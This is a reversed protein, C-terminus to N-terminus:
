GDTHEELLYPVVTNLWEAVSGLIEEPTQSLLQPDSCVFQGTGLSLSIRNGLVSFLAFVPREEFEVCGFGPPVKPAAPNLRERWEPARRGLVM